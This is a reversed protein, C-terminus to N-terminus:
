IDRVAFGLDAAEEVGHVAEGLDPSSAPLQAADGPGYCAHEGLLRGCALEGNSPSLGYM